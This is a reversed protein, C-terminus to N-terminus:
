LLVTLILSGSHINATSIYDHNQLQLVSASIMFYCNKSGCYSVTFHFLLLFLLRTKVSRVGGTCYRVINCCYSSYVYVSNVVRVGATSYLVINCATLVRCM